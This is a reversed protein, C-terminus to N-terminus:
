PEEKGQPYPPTQIRQRIQMLLHNCRCKEHTKKDCELHDVM